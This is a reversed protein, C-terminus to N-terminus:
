QYHTKDKGTKLRFQDDFCLNDKFISFFNGMSSNDIKVFM